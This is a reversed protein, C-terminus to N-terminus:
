LLFASATLHDVGTLTITLDAVRDGTMDAMCVAGESTRQYRLEGATGTFTNTGIFRFAENADTNTNADIMSLSIRDGAGFDAIVDRDGFSEERFLFSDSGAGGSMFDNGVGGEIVDAQAGGWIRDSGEGGILTDGGAGGYILDNGTGGHLNDKGDEGHLTDNGDLGQMSDNGAGGYLVDSGATGAVRNDLANGHGTRGPEAMRLTEVNDPLTYDISAYVTDTGANRDEIVLDRGTRVFYIDDGAGGEMRTHGDGGTLQDNGKGGVLVSDGFVAAKLRDAGDTGDIHAVPVPPAPVDALARLEDVVEGLVPSADAFRVWQPNAALWDGVFASGDDYIAKTTANGQPAEVTKGDIVYTQAVNGAMTTVDAVRIWSAQDLYGAVINDTVALGDAREVHIGNYMGGVVLNDSITVNKYPLADTEDGMFIGQIAAGDGRHIVNGTITINEASVKQNATWFQIADPHDGAEPHFDTFVNDAVLVNSLGGGHFGDARMDHFYNGKITVGSNDLMNIGYRLHTIESNTISVDRSGRVMFANSQYGAEGDQGRIVVQDFSVGVANKVEFDYATSADKDAFVVNRFTINEVGLAKLGTIEAPNGPTASTITVPADFKVNRLTVTDYTGAALAITDGARAQAAAAMLEAASSVSITAM